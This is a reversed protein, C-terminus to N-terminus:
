VFGHQLGLAVQLEENVEWVFCELDMRTTTINKAMPQITLGHFAAAERPVNQFAFVVQFLPNRSFDREPQLEAVLQEFPLDQHEYAGLAVSHVRGLLERFTPDGSLDTRIVLSNVFFGVLNELEPRTRNAIPTGVVIDTQGTYRGLLAQFAALLTTALTVESQRSLAQLDQTLSKSLQFTYSAGSHTQVPPRPRDMPLDLTSVEALHTRWYRLQDELVEGTLWQRQWHAFDVYQIPLAPLTPTQQLVQANYLSALDRQIIGRSWGDTVIHHLTIM